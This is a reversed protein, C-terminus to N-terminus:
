KKLILNKIDNVEVSIKNDVKMLEDIKNKAYIVTAHDRDMAQGITDLPIPMLDTMLYMCVQRPKVLEKNRKKSLLDAKQVDYFACVEDIIRTTTIVDESSEKKLGDSALVETALKLSVPVEDLISAFIVKNLMGQLSRVNDGSREAIFTAVDLGVLHKKEEAKKQVIAIKTEIDPPLVQAKLGGDFRTKLRDDLLQIEKPDCDASLIIQKNAGYLENFTHFFEEQTSQKKALFQVDDIILVDVNRYRNRFVQAGDQSYAKGSRITAILDNTFKECTSYLVTKSPNHINIYNAIAHMIHTKGLGTSGYIFLPNYSNGPDEAVAKAAAYLYRNSGGVVFNDFTYQPDIQSGELEITVGSDSTQSIYDGKNEGVVIEVDTVGTHKEVLATKIIDLIKSSALKTYVNSRTMLVLKTGSLDVPVLKEIIFSYNITSIKGQICPLVDKWIIEYSEM